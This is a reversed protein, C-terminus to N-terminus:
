SPNREFNGARGRAPAHPQEGAITLRGLCPAIWATM